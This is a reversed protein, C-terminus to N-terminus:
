SQGSRPLRRRIALDSAPPVLHGALRGVQRSLRIEKMLSPGARNPGLPRDIDVQQRGAVVGARGALVNLGPEGMGLGPAELVGPSRQDGVVRHRRHVAPDAVVGALAVAIPGFEVAGHADVRDLAKEAIPGELLAPLDGGCRRRAPLADEHDAASRAAERGGIMQGAEAVGDLDVLGPRHGAAHHM